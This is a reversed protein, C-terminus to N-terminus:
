KQIKNLYHAIMGSMVMQGKHKRRNLQKSYRAKHKLKKEFQAKEKDRRESEENRQQKIKELKM